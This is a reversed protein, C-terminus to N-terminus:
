TRKRVFLTQLGRGIPGDTDYLRADALGVGPADIDTRAALGVWEGRAPRYLTVTLDPNMYLYDEMRLRQSVGNGSDAATLVRELPRPQTGELLPVRMRFWTMVDGDGFAGRAFRLEMANAYSPDDDRFLFDVPRSDDPGSEDLGPQTPEFDLPEEAIALADATLVLQGDPDYLRGELAKVTRGDRRVSYELRLPAIPVQRTVEVAVRVIRFPADLTEDFRGAVLASPPGAHQHHASWPGRTWPSSEYLDDDIRRYFFPESM